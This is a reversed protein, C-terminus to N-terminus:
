MRFTTEAKLTVVKRSARSPVVRLEPEPKQRHKTCKKLHM